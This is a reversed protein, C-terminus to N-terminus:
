GLKRVKVEEDHLDQLFNIFDQLEIGDKKESYISSGNTFNFFLKNECEPNESHVYAVINTTYLNTGIQKNNTSIEIVGKEFPDHNHYISEINKYKNKM